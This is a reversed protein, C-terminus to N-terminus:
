ILLDKIFVFSYYVELLLGALLSDLQGHAKVVKYFFMNTKKLERVKVIAPTTSSFIFNVLGRKDGPLNPVLSVKMLKVCFWNIINMPFYLPRKVDCM